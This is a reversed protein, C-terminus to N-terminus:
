EFIWVLRGLFMSKNSSTCLLRPFRISENVEDEAATVECGSFDHLFKGLGM